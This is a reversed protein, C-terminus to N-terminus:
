QKKGKKGAPPQHAQKGAKWIDPEVTNKQPAGPTSRGDAVYKELLKTLQAVVEPHRSQVNNTEGVDHRFDFLQVLPLATTDAQGPRPASWGGSGPCLELKWNGQRIAFSGNISHHVVAERLPRTDKGLLAPLFSVSDEGANDPLKAGLMDAVTALLDTLCIVQTSTAGPKIRAPWRVLFPVRHGGDFIDAKHGRFAHSPNHGKALLAPFDAQPSCGNDSTLLVITNKALGLRDLADLLQGIAADTQMVFDAYFNLGSRGQWEKTPVIPTHPSTLPLYLFFPVSKKDPSEAHKIVFDLAKRTLTPLVDEVEFDPAAPGPRCRGQARGLFLPFEKDVTPLKTVRDNEIFTYPVMDLSASLGFYYDFGVANPGNAIPKSYDVNRVQAPTEINLESVDKGRLKEWDMGLHWKGIAATHYGHQKLFSAVTLRGPEILRPSLGGLVGSQLRTRWNYRGTMIGYRTPSCVSSPSHADAFIMGERAIRDMHPTAIKGNPNLARVDGYGLDDCLIYLINPRDASRLPLEVAVLALALLFRLPNM